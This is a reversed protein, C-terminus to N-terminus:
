TSSLLSRTYAGAEASPIENLLVKLSEALARVRSEASDVVRAVTEEAASAAASRKEADAM